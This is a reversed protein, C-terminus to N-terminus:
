GVLMFYFAVLSVTLVAYALTAFLRSSGSRRGAASGKADKGRQFRPDFEVPSRSM